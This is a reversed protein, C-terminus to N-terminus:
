CTAQMDCSWPSSLDVSRKFRLLSLQSAIMDSLGDM